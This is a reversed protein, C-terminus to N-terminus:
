RALPGVLEGSRDGEVLLALAAAGVPAIEQWAVLAMRGGLQAVEDIWRKEHGAMRSLLQDNTGAALLSQNVVWATPKIGARLLDTQLAAAEHVPTPEPLTVMLIRTFEPDALRDLLSSVDPPVETAQRTLERQFARAGDLLLLTHGSPATDLVVVQHQARSVTAAFARFVAIEETCPSRLDEVLVERASEALGAGAGALVEESYAATVVQPDIREVSLSSPLGEPDGLVQNLHAAPDTTSLVVSVGQRALKVAIAAAITTKGVGGKGVTMVLGRGTAAVEDVLASLVEDGGVPLNGGLPPAPASLWEPPTLLQRLGLLGLPPTDTLEILERTLGRLNAPISSMAKLQRDSFAAALPDPVAALRGRPYIGNVVLLQNHLGIDSLEASARSAELLAGDDPRTVLVLTTMVPDSLIGLAERYRARQQDLGALPGVCSVGLQNSDLFSTWAGPLALMRLTHGTPATDFVVHDFDSSDAILGTFQDFAAIEVTCAGSLQEEIGAVVPDPLVGRYPGVVRERHAAAAAVPDINLAFLGEAGFVLRPESGLETGLVEGLNSAPDTSVLLVRAGRDALALALACSLSTKGVGGKGTFFVFRSPRQLLEQLRPSGDAM